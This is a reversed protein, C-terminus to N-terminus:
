TDVDDHNHGARASRGLLSPFYPPLIGAAAAPSIMALIAPGQRTFVHAPPNRM